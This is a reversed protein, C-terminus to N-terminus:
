PTASPGCGSRQCKQKLEVWRSFYESARLGEQALITGTFNRRRRAQVDQRLAGWAQLFVQMTAQYSYLVQLIHSGAQSSQHWLEEDTYLRIAAEIFDDYASVVVGGFPLDESMGEAGVPGTVVPTGFWWGDAIKGKIGAGFRLPALNVRVGQLAEALTRAQGHVWLGQDPAHWAKHQPGAQAGYIHLNAEPLAARIRPWLRECLLQFSDQNPAHRFNGIMAFDKRQSYALPEPAKNYFLRCLLLLSAPVQCEKILIEYEVDSVVLSLDCRYIAAVERAAAEPVLPLLEAAPLSRLSTEDRSLERAVRVFHLDITDLVRIAEPCIARVRWGYKEETAFRDFLVWDPPAHQLYEEFSADNALLRVCSFGRARLAECAAKERGDAALVLDYGAERLAEALQLSRNSAASSQEEPWISLLFLVRGLGPM